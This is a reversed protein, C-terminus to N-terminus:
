QGFYPKNVDPKRGVFCRDICRIKKEVSLKTLISTWGNPNQSISNISDLKAKRALFRPDFVRSKGYYAAIKTIKIGLSARDDMVNPLSTPCPLLSCCCSCLFPLFHSNVKLNPCRSVSSCEAM